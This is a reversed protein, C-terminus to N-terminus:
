ELHHHIMRRWSSKQCSSLYSIGTWQELISEKGLNHGERNGVVVWLQGCMQCSPECTSLIDSLAIM